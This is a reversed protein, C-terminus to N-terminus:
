DVLSNPQKTPPSRVLPSHREKGIRRFRKNVIMKKMCCSTTCDLPKDAVDHSNLTLSSGPFNSIEIAQGPLFMRHHEVLSPKSYYCSPIRIYENNM